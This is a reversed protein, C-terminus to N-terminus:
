PRGGMQGSSWIRDLTYEDLWKEVDMNDAWNAYTYGNDDIDMVLVEHPKLFRILRDSHTAVIIQTKTSAERILDAFLSLMEPHLSVEPEDIMTIIYPKPSRLLSVLWLFRLTGESLQHMYLPSKFQKDKWTMSLLGAAAAPFGLSEFSPFAARLTDEIVEYEDPSNERLNYLFPVLEEGNLGPHSAPKMQQPLKIPSRKEVDLAHYQIVSSLINKAEEPLKLTRSLQSLVSEFPDEEWSPFEHEGTAPDFYSIRQYEAIIHEFPKTRNPLYQTLVEKAIAYSAGKPQIGIEYNFLQKNTDLRAGLKLDGTYGRTISDSIGGMNGLTNNLEGSASSALLILADLLSTKGVGNAGIMVTVPRLEINLDHIRRFGSISINTLRKYQAQESARASDQKVLWRDEWQAMRLIDIFTEAQKPVENQMLIRLDARKLQSWRLKTIDFNRAAYTTLLLAGIERIAELLKDDPLGWLRRVNEEVAIAYSWQNLPKDPDVVNFIGGTWFGETDNHDQSPHTPLHLRYTKGGSYLSLNDNDAM